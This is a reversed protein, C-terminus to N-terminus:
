KFSQHLDRHTHVEFGWGAGLLDPMRHYKWDLIDNFPGDMLFRETTYGKNNLVIVIPNFGFRVATSLENCTMQFAGDGVLVIPRLRRDAVQVGVGAPVAFGMSAYYAPSLFETHKHITLESSGFLSDGVDAVVVMEDDLQSDIFGFLGSITVPSDLDTVPKREPRPPINPKKRRRLDAKALGKIFDELLVDLFHHHSIR